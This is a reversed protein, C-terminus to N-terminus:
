VRAAVVTRAGPGVLTGDLRELDESRLIRELRQDIGQAAAVLVARRRPAFAALARLDLDVPGHVRDFLAVAERLVELQERDAALAGRHEEAVVLERQALALLDELLDRGRRLVRATRPDPAMVRKRKGGAPSDWPCASTPM